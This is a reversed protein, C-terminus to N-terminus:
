KSFIDSYFIIPNDLYDHPKNKIRPDVDYILDMNPINKEALKIGVKKAYNGITCVKCRENHRNVEMKACIKEILKTVFVNWHKMHSKLALEEGGTTLTLNVFLVKDAFKAFGGSSTWEHYPPQPVQHALKAYLSKSFLYDDRSGVVAVPSGLEHTIIVMSVKTPRTLMTFRFAHKFWLCSKTVRPIVSQIAYKFIDEYEDYWEKDVYVGDSFVYAQSSTFFNRLNSHKLESVSLSTRTSLFKIMDECLSIRVTENIDKDVSSNVKIGAMRMLQTLLENNLVFEYHKNNYAMDVYFVLYM